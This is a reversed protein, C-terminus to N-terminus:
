VSGIVFVDEITHSTFWDSSGNADPVHVSKGSHFVVRLSSETYSNAM